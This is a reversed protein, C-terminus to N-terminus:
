YNSPETKKDATYVSVVSSCVAVHGFVPVFLWVFVLVCACLGSVALM